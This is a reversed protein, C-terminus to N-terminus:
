NRVAFNGLNRGDSARLKHVTGNGTTPTSTVWINAGDFAMWWPGPGVSFTGLSKGDSARLKTVTGKDSASVCINAGDFTVGTPSVWGEFTGLKKGDSARLKTVTGPGFDATWINAGDYAIGLPNVGVKYWQLSFGSPSAPVAGASPQQERSVGQAWAPLLGASAVVLSAFCTTILLRKM